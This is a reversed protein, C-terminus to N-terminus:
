LKVFQHCLPPSPHTQTRQPFHSRLGTESSMEHMNSSGPNQPQVFSASVSRFHFRPEPAPLPNASRFPPVHPVDDEDRPPSYYQWCFCAFLFNVVCRVKGQLVSGIPNEACSFGFSWFRTQFQVLKFGKSQSSLLKSRVTCDVSFRGCCM